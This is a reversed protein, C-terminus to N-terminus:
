IHQIYENFKYIRNSYRSFFLIKTIFYMNERFQVMFVIFRILKKSASLNLMFLDKINQEAM